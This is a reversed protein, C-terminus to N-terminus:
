CVHLSLQVSGRHQPGLKKLIELWHLGTNTWFPELLKSHNTSNTSHCNYLQFISAKQHKRNMIIRKRHHGRKLKGSPTPALAKIQAAWVISMTQYYVWSEAIKEPLTPTLFLAQPLKERLHAAEIQVCCSELRTGLFPSPDHVPRCSGVPWIWAFKRYVHCIQACNNWCSLM